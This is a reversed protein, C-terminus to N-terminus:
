QWGKVQTDEIQIRDIIEASYGIGRAFQKFSQLLQQVTIDIPVDLTLETPCFEDLTEATIYRFQIKDKEQM